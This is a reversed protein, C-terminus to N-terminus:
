LRGLCRASADMPRFFLAGAAATRHLFGTAPIRRPPNASRISSPSQDYRGRATAAFQAPGTPCRSAPVISSIAPAPPYASPRNRTATAHASTTPRGRSDNARAPEHSSKESQLMPRSSRATCTRSCPCAGPPAAPAISAAAAFDASDTGPAATSSQASAAAASTTAVSRQASCAARPAARIPTAPPASAILPAAAAIALALVADTPSASSSASSSARMTM